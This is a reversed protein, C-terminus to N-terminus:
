RINKLKHLSFFDDDIAFNFKAAQYTIITKHGKRYTPILEVRTPIERGGMNKIESFQMESVMGDFEDYNEVRLQIYNDKTVWIKVRDYVIASEPKPILEIVHCPIGNLTESRLIRHTYDYITSSERVLDDNSFDSGMWSQSMMSPPMKITREIAPVYNWIERQRKLFAIGKDRPPGTILILSFDEGKAWAKMSVERTFRPRVTTMTMELYSSSGRMRDEMKRIIELADQAKANPLCIFSLIVIPIIRFLNKM